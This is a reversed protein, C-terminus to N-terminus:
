KGAGQRDRRGRRRAEEVERAMIIADENDRRYYQKRRGVVDFGFSRYMEQAARNSPRVELSIYGGGLRAFDSIANELLMGGLGKRRHEPLVALNLVHMDSLIVWCIIFGDVRSLGGAKRPPGIVRFWSWPHEIEAVFSAPPWPDKFSSKEIVLLQELYELKMTEIRRTTM